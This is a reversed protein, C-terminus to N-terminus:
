VSDPPKPQCLKPIRSLTREERGYSLQISYRAVFWTTPLEFREPRALFFVVMLHYKKQGKWFHNSSGVYFCCNSFFALIAKKVRKLAGSPRAGHIARTLREPRVM